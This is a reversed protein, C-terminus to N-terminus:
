SRGVETTRPMRWATWDRIPARELEFRPQEILDSIAFGCLACTRITCGDRLESVHAHGDDWFHVPRSM